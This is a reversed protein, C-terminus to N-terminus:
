QNVENSNGGSVWELIDGPQINYTSCIKDLVSSSPIQLPNNYLDYATRHAIKAQKEFQYPTIGRSDLFQKIKNRIGSPRDNASDGFVSSENLPPDFWEILAIEIAPLLDSDAQLYAIRVGGMAKLQEYRHHRVWRSQANISRGIYQIVGYSDIAFYICPEAPLLSRRNLPAFPLSLPNVAAPNIM